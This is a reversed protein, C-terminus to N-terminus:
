LLPELIFESMTVFRALPTNFNEFKISKECPELRKSSCGEELYKRPSDKFAIDRNEEVMNPVTVVILATFLFNSNSHSGFSLPIHNLEKIFLTGGIKIGCPNLYFFMGHM